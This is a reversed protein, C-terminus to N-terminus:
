SGSLKGELEAWREFLVDCEAQAKQLEAYANQLASPDSTVAPDNMAAQAKALRAEAEHIRSEITEHERAEKYSLKKKQGQAEPQADSTASERVKSQSSGMAARQDQAAQWQSYDAFLGWGGEGDLGLVATSVRDLMYRDHTVLVLAGPFELLSEELVELTPIDIDNTPEDLLLLDAPQLMLRALVVRAREGGSLKAVPTDLQEARFLFRRAWGAVHVTRDGFVVSDGEPALARRLSVEPNLHARHQDFYTVRLNDARRLEGADAQLEDAITRLLTTKGSGNPGALGLRQGPRLVIDLDRFLTRGGLAKTVGQAEVLKKTKRGTASFEVGVTKDSSRARMDALDEIMRGAADIRAKSKTTRAKPGRRLWEVEVRVQNELAEREKTQAHLFEERKLLFESYSGKSRFIGEPYIRNIEATDTTANELFYRDHSVVVCAFSASALLEELWLIGELDLHNTPEDLLLVEPELALERAIALRKKWGGSLTGARVDLDRFGARGLAVAALTEKEYDEAHLHHMADLLVSHATANEQFSPEQPVYGLRLGKRATVEGTDPTDLGAILRLLTSKGSGNPGILGIRESESVTLTLERFLPQAGFSKSVGQCGILQAM